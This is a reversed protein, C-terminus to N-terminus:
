AAGKNLREIEIALRWNEEALRAKESELLENRQALMEFAEDEERTVELDSM